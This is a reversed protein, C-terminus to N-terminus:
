TQWLTYHQPPNNSSDLHMHILTYAQIHSFAKIYLCFRMLITYNLHEDLKKNQYM